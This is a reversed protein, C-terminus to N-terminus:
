SRVQLQLYQEVGIDALVRQQADLWDLHEEEDRLIQELLSRTGNDDRSRTLVIGRNYREVAAEETERALELQEPINEGVGVPDLRQLNPQGDLYLIRDILSDADKMEGISEEYFKKAIHEYGWHECMRSALFYLNIATLEATLAENLFDIIESDGRM